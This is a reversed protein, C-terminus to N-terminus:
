ALDLGSGLWQVMDDLVARAPRPNGQPPMLGARLKRIAEEWIEADHDMDQLSMIDFAVEGAWDSSNHCEFCYQELVELERDSNEAWADLRAHAVDGSVPAEDGGIAVPSWGIMISLVVPLVDVTRNM